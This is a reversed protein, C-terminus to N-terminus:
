LARTQWGKADISLRAHSNHPTAIYIIDIDRDEFIDCYSGYAREVSYNHAFVRAKEMSRSAVAKLRVGSVLALDRVFQHAKSGLGIVCWNITGNKTLTM